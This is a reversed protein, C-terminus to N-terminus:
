YQIERGYGDLTNIQSNEAMIHNKKKKATHSVPDPLKALVVKCLSFRLPEIYLQLHKIVPFMSM